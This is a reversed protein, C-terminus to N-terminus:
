FHHFLLFQGVRDSVGGEGQWEPSDSISYPTSCVFGNREILLLMFFELPHASPLLFLECLARILVQDTATVM